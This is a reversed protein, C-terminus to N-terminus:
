AQDEPVSIPEVSAAENNVTQCHISGEPFEWRFHRDGITFVDKHCIITKVGNKVSQGNLKTPNLKSLATLYAKGDEVTVSIKAHEGSVFPLQIRIDCDEARGLLCVENMLPFTSGDAGSRKIVVIYGYFPM